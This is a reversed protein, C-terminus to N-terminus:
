LFSGSTGIMLWILDICTNGDYMRIIWQLIIKGDVDLEELEEKGM